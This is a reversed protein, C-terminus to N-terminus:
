QVTVHVTNSASGAATLTIAIDGAGALSAPIPINIQDLGAFTGQMGAYSPAVTQGGISVSFQSNLAYRLGTGYLTLVTTTALHIPTTVFQAATSDYDVLNQITQNGQADILIASGVALRGDATFIGPAVNVIQLAGVSITGDGATIQVQGAGPAFTQPILYNVQGSSVFFIQAPTTQGTSDTVNVTTGGLTTGLTGSASVTQTALHTGFGSVISNPAVPLGAAFSAANVTSVSPAAATSYAFVFADPYGKQAPQFASKDAPLNLGYGTVYVDGAADSTIANAAAQGGLFTSYILSSGDPSFASLTADATQILNPQLANKLPFKSIALTLSDTGGAAYASGAADVAIASLACGPLFTSYVLAAGAPNIKSVFGSTATISPFLAKLTPFDSAATNGVIYANGSGDVAIGTGVSDSNGGLLTSYVLASGAPNIKTAFAFLILGTPTVPKAISNTVPFNTSLTRGTLYVSGSADVAIATAYDVGTGGLFTSYLLASGDSSIKTVFANEIGKLSQIPNKAPFDASSTMGGVYANGSADAAIAKGSDGNRGTGGLYTSYVLLGTANLKVVFANAGKNRLQFPNQVPFNNSITDGTVYANGAGDVAISNAQDTDSGGVYTSYILATGAANLKTVFADATGGAYKKTVQPNLTPFDTSRTLGAVYANGASDLAIGNGQDNSSGGLYTSYEVSPDIVLARRRDYRSILFTASRHGSLHFAAGVASRAGHADTQYVKPRHMRIDGADTALLLDGEGDLRASKAGEYEIEIQSANAGPAVVLDFELKEAANYFVQDVGPYVGRYRVSKYHPVNTQWNAPDDGLFYNSVGGTPELPETHEPKIAGALRMRVPAAGRLAMVAERETLYLTYGSGHALFRVDPDTQGRNPEFVLPLARYRPSSAVSNV